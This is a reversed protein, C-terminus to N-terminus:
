RTIKGTQLYRLSFAEDPVPDDYRVNNENTITTSTGNAHTKMEALTATLHGQINNYELIDMTKELVDNQYLEIRFPLYDEKEIYQIMKSYRYSRDNPISQIVYCLYDDLIEERLLTHIDLEVRRKYIFFDEIYFDGTFLFPTLGGYALDRRLNTEYLTGNVLYNCLGKDWPFNILINDKGDKIINLIRTDQLLRPQNIRFVIIAADLEKKYNQDFVREDTKGDKDKIVMRSRTSITDVNLRNRSARVISEANQTQGFAGAVLICLFALKVIVKKM